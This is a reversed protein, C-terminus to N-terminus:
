KIHSGREQKPHRFFSPFFSETRSWQILAPSFYISLFLVIEILKLDIDKKDNSQGTVIVKVNSHLQFNRKEPFLRLGIRDFINRKMVTILCM